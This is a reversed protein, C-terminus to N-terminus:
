ASGSRFLTSVQSWFCRPGDPRDNGSHVVGHCPFWKPLVSRQVELLLYVAQPQMDDLARLPEAIDALGAPLGPDGSGQEIAPAPPQLADPRVPPWGARRCARA